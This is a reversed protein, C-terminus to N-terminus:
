YWFGRLVGGDDDGATIVPTICTSSIAGESPSDPKEENLPTFLPPARLDKASQVKRVPSVERIM